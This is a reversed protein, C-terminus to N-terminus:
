KRGELMLGDKGANIYPQTDERGKYKNVEYEMKKKLGPRKKFIGREEMDSAMAKAFSPHHISGAPLEWPKKSYMANRIGSTQIGPAKGSSCIEAMRKDCCLQCQCFRGEETHEVMNKLSPHKIM